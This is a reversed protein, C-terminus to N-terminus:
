VEGKAGQGARGWCCVAQPPTLPPTNVPPRPRTQPSNDARPRAPAPRPRTQPSGSGLRAASDFALSPPLPQLPLLYPSPYALPRLAQSPGALGHSALARGPVLRNRQSPTRLLPPAPSSHVFASPEALSRCPTNPVHELNHGPDLANQARRSLTDNGVLEPLTPVRLSLDQTSPGTLGDRKNMRGAPARGKQTTRRPLSPPSQPIM